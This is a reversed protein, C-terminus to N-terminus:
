PQRKRVSCHPLRSVSEPALDLVLPKKVVANIPKPSGHYRDSWFEVQLRTDQLGGTACGVLCSVWCCFRVVECCLGLIRDMMSRVFATVAAVAASVGADQDANEHLFSPAAM